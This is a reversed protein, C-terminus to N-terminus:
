VTERGGPRLREFFKQDGIETSLGRRVLWACFAEPTQERWERSAYQFVLIRELLPGVIEIFVRAPRPPNLPRSAADLPGSEVLAVGPNQLAETATENM